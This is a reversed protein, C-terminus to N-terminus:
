KDKIFECVLQFFNSRDRISGDIFKKCQEVSLSLKPEDNTLPIDTAKVERWIKYECASTAPINWTSVVGDIEAWDYRNVKRVESTEELVIRRPQIKEVILHAM